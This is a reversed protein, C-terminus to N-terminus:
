KGNWPLIQKEKESNTQFAFQIIHILAQITEWKSSRLNSAAIITRAPFTNSDENQISKFQNEAKNLLPKYREPVLTYGGNLDVMRILMELNGGEYNWDTQSQDSLQCLMMMQTRLCNGKSLLWPKKSKLEEMSIKKKTFSPIYAQIEESFLQNVRIGQEQLPGAMIGVDIKKSRLDALLDETKREEIILQISQFQKEWEKYVAPILYPAVTPIIALRIEEVYTGNAQQQISEVRKLQDNIEQLVPLIQKGFNTLELPSRNRDFLTFGLIEEAKKVQMSLTPQTVFCSEAAKSFHGFEFLALIYQIQQTSLM